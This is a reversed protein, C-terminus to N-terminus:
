DRPAVVRYFVTPQSAPTQVHSWLTTGSASRAVNTVWSWSGSVLNTTSYIVFDTPGYNTGGLWKLGQPTTSIFRLYSLRDQPNTGTRYERWAPIGDGDTDTQEASEYGNTVLGYAVLWAYPTGLRTTATFVALRVPTETFFDINTMGLTRGYKSLSLIRLDTYDEDDFGQRIATRGDEDTLLQIGGMEVRANRVAQAHEDQVLVDYERTILSHYWQLHDRVDPSIRLSGKM